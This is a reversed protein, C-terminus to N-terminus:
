PAQKIADLLPINVQVKRFTDLIEKENEEQKTKAFRCPFPLTPVVPSIPNKFIKKPPGGVKLQLLPRMKKLLLIRRDNQKVRPKEPKILCRM